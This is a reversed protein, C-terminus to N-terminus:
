SNISFSIGSISVFDGAGSTSDIWNVNGSDLVDVRAHGGNDPTSFMYYAPPRFGTPLTFMTQAGSSGNGRILGRLEVIDGVIRYEPDGWTSGYATFSNLLTVATWDGPELTEVRVTLANERKARLIEARRNARDLGTTTAQLDNARM